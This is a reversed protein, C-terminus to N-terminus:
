PPRRLFVLQALKTDLPEGTETSIIPAAEEGRHVMEDTIAHLTDSRESASESKSSSLEQAANNRVDETETRRAVPAERSPRDTLPSMALTM